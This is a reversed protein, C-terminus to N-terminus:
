QNVYYRIGGYMQYAGSVSQMQNTLSWSSDDYSINTNWGLAPSWTHRAAHAGTDLSFAYIGDVAVAIGYWCFPSVALLHTTGSDWVFTSGSMPVGDLFFAGSNCVGMSGFSVMIDVARGHCAGLLFGAILWCTTAFSFRQQSM